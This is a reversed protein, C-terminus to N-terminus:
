PRTVTVKLFTAPISTAAPDGSRNQSEFLADLEAKLQDARGDKQAADFANMTPGYYQRFLEVLAAPPGHHEFSYTERAFAINDAPVGAAGFRATVESEVGWTM